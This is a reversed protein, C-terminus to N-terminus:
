QEALLKYIERKVQVLLSRVRNAQEVNGSRAVQTVADNLQTLTHRLEILESLKSEVFSDHANRSDARQNRDSLFQRGTETITYVRKGDVEEIDRYIL